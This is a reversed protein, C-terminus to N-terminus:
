VEMSVISLKIRWDVRISTKNDSIIIPQQSPQGPEPDKTFDIEAYKVMTGDDALINRYLRFGYIEQGVTLLTNPIIFGM